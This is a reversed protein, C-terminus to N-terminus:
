RLQNQSLWLLHITWAVSPALTSSIILITIGVVIDFWIIRRMSAFSHPNVQQAQKRQHKLWSYFQLNPMINSEVVSVILTAIAVHYSVYILGQWLTVWTLLNHFLYSLFIAGILWAGVLGKIQEHLGGTFPLYRHFGTSIADPPPYKLILRLLVMGPGMITQFVRIVPHDEEAAEKSHDEYTEKSM